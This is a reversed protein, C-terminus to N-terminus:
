VGAGVPEARSGALDGPITGSLEIPVDTAPAREVSDAAQPAGTRPKRGMTDAVFHKLNRRNMMTVAVGVFPASQAVCQM